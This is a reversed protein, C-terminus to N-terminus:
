LHHQRRDLLHIRVQGTRQLVLPPRRDGASVADAMLRAHQARRERRGREVAGRGHVRRLRYRQRDARDRQGRHGHTLRQQRRQADNRRGGGGDGGGGDTAVFARGRRWPGRKGVDCARGRRRDVVMLRGVLVVARAAAAGATAHGARVVALRRGGVPALPALHVHSRLRRHAMGGPWWRVCGRLQQQRRHFLFPAYLLYM